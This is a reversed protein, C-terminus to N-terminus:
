RFLYCAVGFGIHFVWYNSRFGAFNNLVKTSSQWDLNRVLMWQPGTELFIKGSLLPRNDGLFEPIRLGMCLNPSFLRGKGSVLENQYESKFFARCWDISLGVYAWSGFDAKVNLGIQRINIDEGMQYYGFFRASQLYDQNRNVPVLTKSAYSIGGNFHIYSFDSAKDVHTYGLQWRQGSVDTIRSERFSTGNVFCEVEKTPRTNELVMDLYLGQSFIMQGMLLCYLTACLKNFCVQVITINMGHKVSM